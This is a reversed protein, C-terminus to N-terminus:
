GSRAARRAAPDDVHGALRELQSSSKPPEADRVSSYMAASTNETCAKPAGPALTALMPTTNRTPEAMRRGRRGGAADAGHLRREDGPEGGHADLRSTATGATNRNRM